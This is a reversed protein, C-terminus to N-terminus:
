ATGNGIGWFLKDSFITSNILHYSALFLYSAHAMKLLITSTLLGSTTKDQTCEQKYSLTLRIMLYQSQM